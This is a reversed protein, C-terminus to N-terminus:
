MKQLEGHGSAYNKKQQNYFKYYLRYLKNSQLNADDLNFVLPNDGSHLAFSFQMYITDTEDTLILKLITPNTSNIRIINIQQFPNPYCVIDLTSTDAGTYDLTDTFNFHSNIAAPFLDNTNWDTVDIPGLLAGNMDRKTIGKISTSVFQLQLTGGNETEKSCSTIFLTILLITLTRM